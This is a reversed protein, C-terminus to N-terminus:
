PQGTTIEYRAIKPDPDVDAVLSFLKGKIGLERLVAQDMDVKYVECSKKQLVNGDADYLTVMFKQKDLELQSVFPNVLLLKNGKGQIRGLRAFPERQDVSPSVVPEPVAADESKKKEANRFATLLRNFEEPDLAEYSEMRPFIQSTVRDEIPNVRVADPAAISSQLLVDADFESNVVVESISTVQTKPVGAIGGGAVNFKIQDGEEWYYQVEISTGDSMSIKIPGGWSLPAFMGWYVCLIGSLSYLIRRLSSYNM